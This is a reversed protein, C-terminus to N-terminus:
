AALYDHETNTCSAFKSVAHLHHPTAAASVEIAQMPWAAQKMTVTNPLKTEVSSFIEDNSAM